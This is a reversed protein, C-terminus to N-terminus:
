DHLTALRDRNPLRVCARRAHDDRVRIEYRFPGVPADKAFEFRLSQRHVALHRGSRPDIDSRLPDQLSRVLRKRLECTLVEASRQFSADRQRGTNASHPARLRQGDRHVFADTEDDVDIAGTQFAPAVQTIEVADDRRAFLREAFDITRLIGSLRERDSVFSVRGVLEWREVLKPKSRISYGILRRCM